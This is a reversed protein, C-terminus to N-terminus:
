RATDATHASKAPAPPTPIIPPKLAFPGAGQIRVQENEIWEEGLRTLEEVDGATHPIPAGIVATITGPHILWSTKPWFEGSNLAVPVLDMELLKAMRAGGSRYRGRYGPLIRTGEPFITIWLGKKKRDLGQELIQDAAAQPNSRDIFITSALSLGWGFFPIPKLEKKAVFVQLPFMKQTAFTEWGSQHKCFIISPTAPIHEQGKIRYKLGTIHELLWLVSLAWATTTKNFGLPVVASLLVGVFFPPTFLVMALWFLINRLVILFM